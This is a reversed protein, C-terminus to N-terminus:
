KERYVTQKTAMVEQRCKESETSTKAKGSPTKLDWLRKSKSGQAKSKKIVTPLTKDEDECILPM